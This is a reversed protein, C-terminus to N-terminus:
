TQSVGHKMVCERIEDPSLGTNEYEALRCVADNVAYGDRLMIDSYGDISTEITIRDTHKM